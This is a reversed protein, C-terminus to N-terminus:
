KQLKELLSKAELLTEPIRWYFVEAGSKTKVYHGVIFGRESRRNDIGIFDGVGLCRRNVPHVYFSIGWRKELARAEEQTMEFAGTGISKLKKSLLVKVKDFFERRKEQDFIQLIERIADALGQDGKRENLVSLLVNVTEVEMTFDLGDKGERKKFFEDLDKELRGLDQQQPEGIKELTENEM